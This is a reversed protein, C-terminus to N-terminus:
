LTEIYAELGSEFIAADEHSNFYFNVDLGENPFNHVSYLGGTVACNHAYEGIAWLFSIQEKLEDDQLEQLLAPAEKSLHEFWDPPLTEEKAGFLRVVISEEGYFAFRISEVPLLMIDFKEKQM